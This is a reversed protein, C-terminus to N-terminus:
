LQPMLKAFDPDNRYRDFLPDVYIDLLSSREGTAAARTAWDLAAARDDRAISMQMMFLPAVYGRSAARKMEEAAADSAEHNGALKEAAALLALAEPSRGDIAVAARAFRLADEPKKRMFANWGAYLQARVYSPDLEITAAFQRASDDYNRGLYHCFGLDNNVALSLPDVSLAKRLQAIGATHRGTQVLHRGFWHHATVYGPNLELARRFEREAGKWDWAFYHLVHGLSAHPEAIRPDLSIAKEAAARARAM